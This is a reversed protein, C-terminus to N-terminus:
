EQNPESNESIAFERRYCGDSIIMVLTLIFAILIAPKSLFEHPLTDSIANTFLYYHFFQLAFLEAVLLIMGFIVAAGGLLFWIQQLDATECESSRELLVSV